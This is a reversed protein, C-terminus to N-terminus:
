SDQTKWGEPVEINLKKEESSFIPNDGGTVTAEQEQEKRKDGSVMGEGGARAMDMNMM